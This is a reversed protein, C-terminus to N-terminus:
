DVESHDWCGKLFPSNRQPVVVATSVSRPRLLKVTSSKKQVKEPSPSSASHGKKGSLKRKLTPIVKDGNVVSSIGEGIWIAIRFNKDLTFM